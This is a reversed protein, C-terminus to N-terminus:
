LIRLLSCTKIEVTHGGALCVWNLGTTLIPPRDDISYFNNLCVFPRKKGLAREDIALYFTKSTYTVRRIEDKSVGVDGMFESIHFLRMHHYFSVCVDKPNRAVYVVKCVDLLRPNLLSFPLHSKVFRPSPRNPDSALAPAVSPVPNGDKESPPATKAVLEKDVITIMDM